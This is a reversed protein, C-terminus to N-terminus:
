SGGGGRSYFKINCSSTSTVPDQVGYNMSVHKDSVGTLLTGGERATITTAGAWGSPTGGGNATYGFATARIEGAAVVTFCLHWRQYGSWTPTTGSAWSINSSFTPTHNSTSLDLLMQASNGVAASTETFTTDAGLICNMMPTSFNINDTTSSIGYAANNTKIRAVNGAVNKLIRADDIVDTGAIKIAM